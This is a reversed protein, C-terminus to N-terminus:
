GGGRRDAAASDVDVRQHGIEAAHQVPQDALVDRQRGVEAARRRVHPGVGSCSSCTTTLRTTLARSAIGFPPASPIAV